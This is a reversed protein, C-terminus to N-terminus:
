EFSREYDCKGQLRGLYNIKFMVEDAKAKIATMLRRDEEANAALKQSDNKHLARLREIEHKLSTIASDGGSAIKGIKEDVLMSSGEAMKMDMIKKLDAIPSISAVGTMTLQGTEHIARLIQSHNYDSGLRIPQLASLDALTKLIHDVEREITEVLASGEQNNRGEHMRLEDFLAQLEPYGTKIHELSWEYLHGSGQLAPWGNLYIAVPSDKCGQVIKTTRDSSAESWSKFVNAMLTKYHEMLKQHKEMEDERKTQIFFARARAQRIGLRAILHLSSHSHWCSGSDDRNNTDVCRADRRHTGYRNSDISEYKVQGGATLLRFFIM